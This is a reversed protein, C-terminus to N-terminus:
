NENKLRSELFQIMDKLENIIDEDDRCTCSGTQQLNEDYNINVKNLNFITKTDFDILMYRNMTM